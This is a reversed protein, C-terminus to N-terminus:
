IQLLARTVQCHEIERYVTFQTTAIEDRETDIIHRGM